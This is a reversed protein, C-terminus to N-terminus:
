PEDDSSSVPEYDGDDLDDPQEAALSSGESFTSDSSSGSGMDSSSPSSDAGAAAQRERAAICADRANAYFSKLAIVIRDESSAPDPETGKPLLDALTIEFSAESVAPYVEERNVIYASKVLYGNPKEDTPRPLKRPRIITALARYQGTSDQELQLACVIKLRWRSGQVWHQIKKELSARSQSVAAELVLFPFTAGALCLSADPEQNIFQKTGKRKLRLPCALPFSILLRIYQMKTTSHQESINGTDRIEILKGKHKWRAMEIQAAIVGYCRKLAEHPLNPMKVVICATTNPNLHGPITAARQYQIDVRWANTRHKFKRLVRYDSYTAPVLFVDQSIRTAPDLSKGECLAFTANIIRIVRQKKQKAYSLTRKRPRTPKVTGPTNISSDSHQLVNEREELSSYPKLSPLHPISSSPQNSGYEPTKPLPLAAPATKPRAEPFRNHYTSSTTIHKFASEPRTQNHLSSDSPAGVVSECSSPGM